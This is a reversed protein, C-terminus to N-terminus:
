SPQTPPLPPLLRPTVHPTAPDDVPNPIPPPGNGTGPRLPDHGVNARPAAALRYIACFTRFLTLQWQGGFPNPCPQIKLFDLFALTDVPRWGPSNVALGM